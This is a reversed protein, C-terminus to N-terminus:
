LPLFRFGIVTYWGPCMRLALRGKAFWPLGWITMPKHHSAPSSRFDLIKLSSIKLRFYEKGDLARAPM